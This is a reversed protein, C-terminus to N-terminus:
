VQVRKQEESHKRPSQSANGCHMARQFSRWLMIMVGLVCLGPGLSKLFTQVFLSLKEEGKLITM